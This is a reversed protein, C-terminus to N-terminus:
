FRGSLERARRDIGHILWTTGRSEARVGRTDGWLRVAAAGIARSIQDQRDEYRGQPIISELSRM